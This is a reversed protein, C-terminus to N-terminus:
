QKGANRQKAVAYMPTIRLESVQLKILRSGDMRSCRYVVGPKRQQAVSCSSSRSAQEGDDPLTLLGTKTVVSSISLMQGHAIPEDPWEVLYEIVILITRPVRRPPTFINRAQM